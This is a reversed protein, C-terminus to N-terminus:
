VIIKVVNPLVEIKTSILGMAYEGDLTWPEAKPMDVVVKKAHYFQICTDEYRGTQMALLAKSIELPSHPYRVLIVEFVGDSFNVKEAALKVFGGISTANSVSGFIYDDEVVLGDDLTVRAHIPRINPLDRFGELVYALHGLANKSAQPVNYATGTFAGFSAIYSFFRLNNFRGIDITMPTGDVIRQAARKLDERELGLSAAFDNTTGCPIYGIPVDHGGEILGAMGENLTGDGGCVVVLDYDAGMRRIMQTADGRGRTMQVTVLYGADSFVKVVDFVATSMKMRGSVPNIILLLKKEEMIPTGKRSGQAAREKNLM